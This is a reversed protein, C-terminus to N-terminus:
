APKVGIRSGDTVNDLEDSAAVRAKAYAAAERVWARQQQSLIKERVTPVPATKTIRQKNTEDPKRPM